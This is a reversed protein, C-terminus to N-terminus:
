ILTFSNMRVRLTLFYSRSNNKKEGKKETQNEKKERALKMISTLVHVRRILGRRMDNQWKLLPLPRTLSPLYGRRNFVLM